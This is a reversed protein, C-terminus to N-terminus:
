LKIEQLYEWPVWITHGDGDADVFEIEAEEHNGGVATVTTGEVMASTIAAVDDWPLFDTLGLPIRTLVYPGLKM